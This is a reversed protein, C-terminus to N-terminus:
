DVNTIVEAPIAIQAGLNFSSKFRLYDTNEDYFWKAESIEMMEDTGVYLNKDWTLMMKNSGSLGAEAKIKVLNEYGYIWSELFGLNTANDGYYNAALRNRKYMNYIAVSCHLTLVGRSWMAETINTLFDLVIDDINSDTATVGSYSTLSITLGTVEDFWGNIMGSTGLWLDAEVEKKIADLEAQTLATDIMPGFDGDLTGAPLTFAKKILDNKCFQDRYAYTVVEIERETFTTDGSAQLGCAGAQVHPNVELFNLYAKNQVFKQITYNSLDDSFLVGERLLETAKQTYDSLGSVTFGAM